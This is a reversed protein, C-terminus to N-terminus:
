NKRFIDSIKKLFSSDHAEKPIKTKEQEIRIGSKIEAMKKFTNDDEFYCLCSSIDSHHNLVPYVVVNVEVSEVITELILPSKFLLYKSKKLETIVNSYNFNDLINEAYKNLIDKEEVGFDNLLKQSVKNVRGRADLLIVHQESKEILLNIANSLSSIKLSKMKNLSNLQANIDIIKVGLKGLKKLQDGSSYKGYRSLEIVKDLERLINKSKILTNVFILTAAVLLIIIYFLFNEAFYKLSLSDQFDIRTIALYSYVGFAVVIVVTLIFISYIRSKSILYM